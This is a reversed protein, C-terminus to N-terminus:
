VVSKRDIGHDIANRVLHILMEVLDDMVSRDLEIEGGRFRIEVQKDLKKALNNLMRKLPRLVITIPMLRTKVVTNYLRQTIGNLEKILPHTEKAKLLQLKALRSQLLFLDATADLLTDLLAAPIKLVSDKLPPSGM